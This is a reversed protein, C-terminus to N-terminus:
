QLLPYIDVAGNLMEVSRSTSDLSPAVTDKILTMVVARTDSKKSVKWSYGQILPLRKVDQDIDKSPLLLAYVPIEQDLGSQVLQVAEAKGYHWLESFCYSHNGDVPAAV